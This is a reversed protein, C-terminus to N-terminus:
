VLDSIIPEVETASYYEIEKPLTSEEIQSVTKISFVGGTSTIERLNVDFQYGGEANTKGQKVCVVEGDRRLWFNVLANPIEEELEGKVTLVDTQPDISYETITNALVNSNQLLLITALIGIGTKFRKKTQKRHM